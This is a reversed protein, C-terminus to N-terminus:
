QAGETEGILRGDKCPLYKILQVRGGSWYYLSGPQRRTELGRRISEYFYAALGAESAPKRFDSLVICLTQM